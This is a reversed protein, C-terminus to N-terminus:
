LLWGPIACLDLAYARGRGGLNIISAINNMVIAASANIVNYVKVM